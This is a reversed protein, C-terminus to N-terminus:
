ASGLFRGGGGSRQQGDPGYTAARDAASLLAELAQQNHQLRRAILKGNTDNLTRAEKALALLKQWQSAVAATAAGAAILAEMGARGSELGAEVLLRDRHGSLAALRTAFGSKKEVLPLLVDVNGGTALLEQEQKLLELFAGIEQLEETLSRALAAASQPSVAM